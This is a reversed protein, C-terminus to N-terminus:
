RPYKGDTWTGASSHLDRLHNFFSNARFSPEPNGAVFNGTVGAYGEAHRQLIERAWGPPVAVHEEIFALIDSTATLVARKQLQGLTLKRDVAEYVVRPHNLEPFDKAAGNARDYVFIVIQDAIDQEMVSRLMRQARDRYEDAVLVVTLAVNSSMEFRKSIM